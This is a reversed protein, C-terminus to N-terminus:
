LEWIWRNMGHVLKCLRKQQFRQWEEQIANTLEAIYQCQTNCQNKSHWLLGMCASNPMKCFFYLCQMFQIIIGWLYILKIPCHTFILVHPWVPCFDYETFYFDYEVWKSVECTIRGSNNNKSLFVDAASPVCWKCAVTVIAM